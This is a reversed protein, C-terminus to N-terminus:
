QTKRFFQFFIDKQGGKDMADTVYFMIYKGGQAPVVRVSYGDAFHAVNEMNPNSLPVEVAEGKNRSLRNYTVWVIYYNDKAEYIMPLIDLYSKDKDNTVLVPRSWTIGDNDAKKVRKFLM